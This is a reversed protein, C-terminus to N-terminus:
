PSSRRGDILAWRISLPVVRGKGRDQAGGREARARRRDVGSRVGRGIQYRKEPAKKLARAIVRRLSLPLEPRLKDLSPPDSKTIKYAVSIM